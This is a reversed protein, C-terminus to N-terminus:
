FPIKGEFIENVVYYAVGEEPKIYLKLDTILTRKKAARFDAKAAEALANLDVDGGQYQLVLGPKLNDAKEGIEGTLLTVTMQGERGLLMFDTRDGPWPTLGRALADVEAASRRWDIVGDAKELKPAWSALAEDQPQAVLEGKAINELSEQLLSAGALALERELSTRTQRELQGAYM